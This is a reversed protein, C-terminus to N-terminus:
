PHHITELQIDRIAQDIGPDRGASLAAATVPAADDPPVGIGDVFEGNAGRYFAVPIELVGGDNLSWTLAPGAADGATREGVLRGVDLDRVAAATVDCASACGRDILAVLPVRILPMTSDTRSATLHGYGNDMLAYVRGPAFAGLLRAPEAPSGGGNGRLDLILGRLNKGLGLGAVAAFVYNAANDVFTHLQVYAINGPLVRATVPQPNPYVTPTVTFTLQKGGAPREIRLHVTDPRDLQALSPPDPLGQIFPPYGNIATIVDGPRIGVRAAPSEGDVGIVFLPATSRAPLSPDVSLRLGLGFDASGAALPIGAGKSNGGVLPPAYQTHDDQLSSVLGAIAAQALSERISPVKPLHRMIATYMRSFAQRDSTHDGRLAPLVAVSTDLGRQTLANVLGVMAGHLLVRDDLSQGSPYHALLCNYAQEITTLSTPTPAAIVAAGCPVVGAPRGAAAAARVPPMPMSVCLGAIMLIGVLVNQISRDHNHSGLAPERGTDNWSTNM